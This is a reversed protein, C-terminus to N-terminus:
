ERTTLLVDSMKVFVFLIGSFSLFSGKEPIFYIFDHLEIGPNYMRGTNGMHIGPGCAVVWSRWLLPRIQETGHIEPKELEPMASAALIFESKISLALNGIHFKTILPSEIVRHQNEM